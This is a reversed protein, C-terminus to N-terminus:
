AASSCRSASALPDVLAGLAASVGILAAAGFAIYFADAEGRIPNRM